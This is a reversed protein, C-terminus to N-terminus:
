ARGWDGWSYLCSSISSRSVVAIHLDGAAEAILVETGVALGFKGLDVDLHGKHIFFIDHGHVLAEDLVDEVFHQATSTCVGKRRM